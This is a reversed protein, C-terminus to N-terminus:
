PSMRCKGRLPTLLSRRTPNSCDYTYKGESKGAASCDACHQVGLTQALCQAAGKTAAKAKRADLM